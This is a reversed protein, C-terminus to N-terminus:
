DDTKDDVWVPNQSAQTCGTIGAHLRKHRRAIKQAQTCDKTGAHL